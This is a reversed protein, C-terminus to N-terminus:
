DKKIGFKESLKVFEEEKSVLNELNQKTEITNKEIGLKQAVDILKSSDVGLMNGLGSLKEEKIKKQENALRNALEINASHKKPTNKNSNGNSFNVSVTQKQPIKYAAVGAKLNAATLESKLVTDSKVVDSAKMSDILSLLGDANKKIDVQDTIRKKQSIEKNNEVTTKKMEAMKNDVLDSFSDSKKPETKKAPTKEPIKNQKDATKKDKLKAKEEEEKAQKAQLILLQKNRWKLYLYVIGMILAVAIGIAYKTLLWNEAEWISHGVTDNEAINIQTSDNEEIEDDILDSIFDKNAKLVNAIHSLNEVTEDNQEIITPLVITPVQNQNTKQKYIKAYHKAKENNNKTKYIQSLAAFVDNINTNNIEAFRFNKLASNIKGESLFIFGLFAAADGINEKVANQLDPKALENEYDILSLLGLRYSEEGSNLKNWDFVDIILSQSFPLKAITYGRQEALNITLTTQGDKKQLSVQKIIGEGTISNIEDAFTANRLNVSLERKNASLDSEINEPLKDFKVTLRNLPAITYNQITVAFLLNSQQFCITCLILLITRIFQFLNYKKNKNM